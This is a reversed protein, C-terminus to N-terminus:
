KHTRGNETISFKRVLVKRGNREIVKEEIESSNKPEYPKFKEFNNENQPVLSTSEQKLQKYRNKITKKCKGIKNLSKRFSKKLWILPLPVLSDKSIHLPFLIGIILGKSFLFKFGKFSNRWILFIILTQISNQIKGDTDIGQHVRDEIHLINVVQHLTIM